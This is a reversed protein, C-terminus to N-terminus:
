SVACGGGSVITPGTVILHALVGTPVVGVGFTTAELGCDGGLGGVPPWGVEKAETSWPGLGRIARPAPDVPAANGSLTDVPPECSKITVAVTACDDSTDVPVNTKSVPSTPAVGASEAAGIRGSVALSAPSSPTTAGLADPLEAIVAVTAPATVAASPDRRTAM